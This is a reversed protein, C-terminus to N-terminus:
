ARNRRSLGFKVYRFGHFTFKPEWVEEGEGKFTYHDTVARRRLNTTYLSGDPNLVEAFRLIATTGAPASAKSVCGAWWTRAWTSSIAATLSPVQSGPNAVPKLEEIRKVTPGNTAM